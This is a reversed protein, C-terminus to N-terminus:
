RLLGMYNEMVAVPFLHPFMRLHLARFACTQLQFHASVTAAILRYKHGLREPNVAVFMFRYFIESQSIGHGSAVGRFITTCLHAQSTQVALTAHGLGFLM